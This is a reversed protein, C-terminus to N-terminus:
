SGLNTSPNLIEPSVRRAMPEGLRRKGQREVYWWVGNVSTKLLCLQENFCNIIQSEAITVWKPQSCANIFQRIIVRLSKSTPNSKIRDEVRKVFM